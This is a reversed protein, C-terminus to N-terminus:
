SISNALFAVQTLRATEGHGHNEFIARSHYRQSPFMVLRNFRAPVHQVLWWASATAGEQSRLHPTPNGLEGTARHKWFDTGDGAPPDSNLYLIASWDGMDVDTHRFHPEVQGEPSRRFFTTKTQLDPYRAALWGVLGATAHSLAIGHFVILGRDTEFQLTRFTSELAARRYELPDALVDDFILIESVSVGGTGTRM